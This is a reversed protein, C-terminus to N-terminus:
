GAVPFAPSLSFSESVGTSVRGFLLGHAKLTLQVHNTHHVNFANIVIVM